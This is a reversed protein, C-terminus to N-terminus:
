RDREARLLSLLFSAGIAATLAGVPLVARQTTGRPNVEFTLWSAVIDASVLLLAGVVASAVLVTPLGGRVTRRAVHPAMLGLFGLAGTVSVAAATAAAAVVFVLARAREVALGCGRAVEDGLQLVGAIRRVSVVAPVLVLTSVVLLRAETWTRAHLSGIVWRFVAGLADGSRLLLLTTIASLVAGFVVGTLVFRLPDAGRHWGIAYVIGGGVTAGLLAAAPLAIPSRSAPGVVLMLVVGLVAAPTVGVLGPDALENRTIAQLLAGAVGLLAGACCAVIARPARLGLVIHRAAPDGDGLVIEWVATPGLDARGVGLHLSLLLLLTALGGALWWVDRPLPSAGGHRARVHPRHPTLDTRMVM